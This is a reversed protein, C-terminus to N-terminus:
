AVAVNKAPSEEPTASMVAVEPAAPPVVVVDPLPSLAVVVVVFLLVTRMVTPAAATSVTRRAAFGPETGEFPPVTSRRAVTVAAFPRLKCPRRTVNADDSPVSELEVAIV